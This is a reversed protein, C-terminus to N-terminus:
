KRAFVDRIAELYGMGNVTDPELYSGETWENWANITLIEPKVIGNDLFARAELLVKKFEEPTNGDLIGMFPYGVNEFVDSQVTRPSSDWGMTVNPYFPISYQGAFREFDVANAERYAAYSNCPFEPLGHHHLWVYSTASDFGLEALLENMNNVNAECPLIHYDFVVANLHLESLGEARVRGRFDDLERRTNQVGGLGEVLCSPDYISLYLGGNVRWYSPHSFYIEIMHSTACLFREHNIRGDAQVNFPRSRQAPHINVWEPHNAWMLGFKMRGNNRAGMFGKELAKELFPRNDFWYWDFLFSTIGHDAAASIKKEMVGPESEDEYGWAPVKPQQHGQFRPEARKLLEWETWGAGHWQENRADPHFNPFYYAAIEYRKNM